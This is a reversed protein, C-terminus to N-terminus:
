IMRVTKLKGRLKWQVKNEMVHCHQVIQPLAVPFKFFMFYYVTLYNSAAGFSRLLYLYNVPNAGFKQSVDLLVSGGYKLIALFFVICCLVNTFKSGKTTYECKMSNKSPEIKWPFYGIHFSIKAFIKFFNSFGQPAFTTRKDFNTAEKTNSIIGLYSSAVDWVVQGSGLKSM